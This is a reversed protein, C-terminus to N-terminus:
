VGPWQTQDNSNVSLSSHPPFFFVFFFVPPGVPTNLLSRLRITNKHSLSPAHSPTLSLTPCCTVRLESYIEESGGSKKGGAGRALQVVVIQVM